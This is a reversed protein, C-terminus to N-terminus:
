GIKELEVEFNAVKQECNANKCKVQLRNSGLPGTIILDLNDAYLIGADTFHKAENFGLKVFAKLHEISLPVDLKLIISTKGCCANVSFRESKM